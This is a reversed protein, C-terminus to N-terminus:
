KQAVIIDIKRIPTIDKWKMYDWSSVRIGSSLMVLVLPKIRRDPYELLKKIEEVTPPRDDSHRNGKKIGKTILKWNILIGNM